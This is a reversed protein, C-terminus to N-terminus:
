KTYNNIRILVVVLDVVVIPALYYLFVDKFGEQWRDFTATDQTASHVAAAGTAALLDGVGGVMMIAMPSDHPGRHKVATNFTSNMCGTALTVVLALRLMPRTHWAVVDRDSELLWVWSRTVM